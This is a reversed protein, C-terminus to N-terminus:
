EIEFLSNRLPGVSLRERVDDDIRPDDPQYLKVQRYVNIRNIEEGLYDWM